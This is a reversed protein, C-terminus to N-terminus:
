SQQGAMILKKPKIRDICNVSTLLFAMKTVSTLLSPFFACKSPLHTNTQAFTVVKAASFFSITM